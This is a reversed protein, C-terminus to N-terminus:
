KSESGGCVITQQQSGIRGQGLADVLLRYEAEAQPMTFQITAKGESDTMLQPNFYLSAPAPTAQPNGAAREALLEKKNEESDSKQKLPETTVAAPGAILGGGAAGPMGRADGSLRRNMSEAESDKALNFSRAQQGGRVQLTV